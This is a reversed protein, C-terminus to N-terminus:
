KPKPRNKALQDAEERFQDAMAALGRSRLFDSYVRLDQPQYRVISQWIRTDNTRLSLAELMDMLSLNPAYNRAITFQAAAAQPNGAMVLAIAYDRHILADLRALSLAHQFAKDSLDFRQRAMQIRGLTAWYRADAPRLQIARALSQEALALMEDKKFLQLFGKGSAASEYVSAELFHARDNKDSWRQAAALLAIEKQGPVTNPLYPNELVWQQENKLSLYRAWSRQAVLGSLALTAGIISIGALSRVPFRLVELLFREGHKGKHFNIALLCLAVITMMTLANSPIHMNFDGLNHIAISILSFLAGYGLCRAKFDKRSSLRFVIQHTAAFGISVWLVFGLFGTEFTWQLYENEAHTVHSSIPMSMYHPFLTSFSGLGTGTLAFDSLAQISDSWIDLRYRFSSDYLTSWRARALPTAALVVMILLIGALGAAAIIRLNKRRRTQPTEAETNNGFSLARLSFLICAAGFSLVGGRSLSAMLAVLMLFSAVSLMWAASGDRHVLWAFYGMMGRFGTKEKFQRIEALLMGLSLGLALEMYGAFHNHNVFPGFPSASPSDYIWYIKGNSWAHQVLGVSAVVAGTAIIARYVHLYAKGARLLNLALFFFLAYCLYKLLEGETDFPTLTIPFRSFTSAGLDRAMEAAKRYLFLTDTSLAGLIRPTIPLATSLLYATLLLVPWTLRTKVLVIEGSAIQIAAWLALLLCVSVEMVLIWFDQVSGFPFPILILILTILIQSARTLIDAASKPEM